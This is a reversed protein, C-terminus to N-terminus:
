RFTLHYTFTFAGYKGYLKTVGRLEHFLEKVRLPLGFFCGSTQRNEASRKRLDALM